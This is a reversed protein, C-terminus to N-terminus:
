AGLAGTLGAPEARRHGLLPERPHMAQGRSKEPDGFPARSNSSMHTHLGM